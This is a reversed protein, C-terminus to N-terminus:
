EGAAIQRQPRQHGVAPRIPAVTRSQLDASFENHARIAREGSTEKGRYQQGTRTDRDTAKTLWAALFRPMGGPTKRKAANADCWVLAKRCEAMVDLGPFASVWVDIQSQSLHWAKGGVGSTPFTMVPPESVAIAAESSVSKIKTAEAEAEAEAQAKKPKGHSVDSVDSVKRRHRAVAERTQIRREDSDRQERYKLYNLLQWGGEIEVIRRGEHAKTRSWQDPASLISLADIVQELSVGAAKALGPVSAGVRGNRDAMALMTIWTIKVHMDTTWVTSHIISEFLKTFGSVPNSYDAKSVVDIPM